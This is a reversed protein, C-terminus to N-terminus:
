EREIGIAVPDISRSENIVDDQIRFALHFRIAIRHRLPSRTIHHAVCPTPDNREVGRLHSLPGTESELTALHPPGIPM